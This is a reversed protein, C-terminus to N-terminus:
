TEVTLLKFSSVACNNALKFNGLCDRHSDNHNKTNQLISIKIREVELSATLHALQVASQKPQKNCRAWSPVLLSYRHTALQGTHSFEATSLAQCDTRYVVTTM